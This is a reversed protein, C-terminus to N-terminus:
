FQCFNINITHRQQAKKSIAKVFDVHSGSSFQRAGPYILFLSVTMLPVQLPIPTQMVARLQM